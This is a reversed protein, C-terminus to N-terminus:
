KELECTINDLRDQIMRGIACINSCTRHLNSRESLFGISLNYEEQTLLKGCMQCIENEKNM